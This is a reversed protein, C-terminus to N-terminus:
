IGSGQQVKLAAEANFLERKTTLDLVQLREVSAREQASENEDSAAKLTALERDLEMNTMDNESQARYREAQLAIEERKIQAMAQAVQQEVTRAEKRDEIEAQKMSAALM